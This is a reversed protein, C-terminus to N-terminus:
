ELHAARLRELYKELAEIEEATFGGHVPSAIKVTSESGGSGSSSSSGGSGGSGGSKGSGGPDHSQRWALYMKIRELAMAYQGERLGAKKSAADAAKKDTDRIQEETGTIQKELASAQAEAPSPPPVPGCKNEVAASDERTPLMASLVVENLKRQATTDGRAAAANYEQAARSLKERMAPDATMAKQAYESARRDQAQQYGAQLCGHVDDRQNRLARMADGQKDELANREQMLKEVKAVLAPRGSSIASSAEIAAVIRGVREETLEVMIDGFEIKGPPRSPTAEAPSGDKKDVAQAAKDKAKKVLGGLGADAPSAVAVTVLCAVMVAVGRLASPISRPLPHSM